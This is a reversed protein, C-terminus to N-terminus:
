PCAGWAGLLIGLDAGGVLGDDDLDAACGACAGWSGLMIGLDAGEVLGDGNFDAACVSGGGFVRARMVMYDTGTATNPNSDSANTVFWGTDSLGTSGGTGNQGAGGMPFFSKLAFGTVGSSGTQLLLRVGTSASWAYLSSDDVGATVAGQLPMRVVMEGNANINPGSSGAFSTSYFVGDPLGVAQAGGRFIPTIANTALDLDVGVNSSTGGTSIGANFIVHNTATLALGTSNVNSFTGGNWVASADGERLLVRSGGTPSYLCFVSDDATTVGAGAISATFVFSGDAAVGRGNVTFTGTFTAGSIGYAAQGERVATSKIGDRSVIVAADNATTVTGGGLTATAVVTTDNVFASFASMASLYTGDTFGPAAQGRRFVLQASSPGATSLMWFGYNNATAGSTITDGGATSSYWLMKGSSTVRATSSSLNTSGFNNTLYTGAAAGPAQMGVIALLNAAGDSGVLWLASNNQTPGATHIINPGNLSGAVVMHGAKSTSYTTTIGNIGTSTNFVSGAPAGTLAASGNRAVLNMAGPIGRLLVRNNANTLSGDPLQITNSVIVRGDDDICGNNFAGPVWIADTVGGVDVDTSQRSLFEWVVSQASVACSVCSAAVVVISHNLM